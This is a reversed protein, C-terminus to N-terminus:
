AYKRSRTNAASEKPTVFRLNGPEYHGDPDIRDIWKGPDDHGPLTRLYWVFWAISPFKVRVGRGYYAARGPDDCRRRAAKARNRLRAKVADSM